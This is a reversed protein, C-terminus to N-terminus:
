RRPRLHSRSTSCSGCVLVARVIVPGSHPPAPALARLDVDHKLGIQALKRFGGRCLMPEVARTGDPLPSEFFPSLILFSGATKTTPSDARSSVCRRRRTCRPSCRRCAAQMEGTSRPKASVNLPRIQRPGVAPPRPRGRRSYAPRGILSAPRRRRNVYLSHRKCASSRAHAAQSASRCSELIPRL